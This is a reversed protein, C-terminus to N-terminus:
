GVTRPAPRADPRASAEPQGMLPSFLLVFLEPYLDLPVDEPDVFNQIALGVDMAILATAIAKARDAQEPAAQEILMATGARNDRWFTAALDRVRPERGAQALCELWLRWLWQGDREAQMGALIEGLERLTPARQLDQLAAQVMNTYRTYVRDRLLEVLVDDRSKFNSYFAGRSYGAEASIEEVSSGTFGRKVFVRAAADLLEQRTQAQSEARTLRRRPM